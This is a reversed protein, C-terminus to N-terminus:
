ETEVSDEAKMGKLKFRIAKAKWNITKMKKIQEKKEAVLNQIDQKIETIKEKKLSQDLDSKRVEGISKRMEIIKGKTDCLINRVISRDNQTDQLMSKLDAKNEPLDYSSVLEDIKSRFKEEVEGFNGCHGHFRGRGRGFRGRGFRGRGHGHGRRRGRGNRRGRRRCRWPEDEDKFESEVDDGFLPEAEAVGNDLYVLVLLLHQSLSVAIELEPNSSFTVLEEEDDRYKLVIQTSESLHYLMRITSELRDFDPVDLRFRRIDDGLKSKIHLVSPTECVTQGQTNLVTTTNM